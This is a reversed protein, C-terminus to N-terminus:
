FSFTTKADKIEAMFSTAGGIELDDRLDAATVDHADLALECLGLRGGLAVYGELLSEMPPMGKGTLSELYGPRLAPVAAPTFFIIVDDGAAIASSAFIFTPYLNSNESGNCIFAVKAM